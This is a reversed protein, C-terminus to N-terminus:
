ARNSRSSPDSSLRSHAEGMREALARVAELPRVAVTIRTVLDHEDLQLHDVVEAPQTAVRFRCTVAHTREGWLEGTIDLDEVFTALQVFFALVKDRGYIPADFAPTDLIVDPHLAAALAVGDRNQLAIRYPHSVDVTTTM